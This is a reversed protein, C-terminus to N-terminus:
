NEYYTYYYQHVDVHKTIKTLPTWASAIPRNGIGMLFNKFVFPTCVVIKM